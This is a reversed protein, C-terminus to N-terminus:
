YGLQDFILFLDQTNPAGDPTNSRNAFKYRFNGLDTVRTGKM